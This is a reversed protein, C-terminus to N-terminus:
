QHKKNASRFLDRASSPKFPKIREPVSYLGGGAFVLIAGIMVGLSLKNGFLWISLLLSVLKRINLVISVTLASTQTSLHHVGSICAIQTAGNGLLLPIFQPLDRYTTLLRTKLIRPLSQISIDVISSLFGSSASHKSAASYALSLYEAKLATWQALFFPLALIHSYFLQEDAIAAERGYKTYLRDCWIGMTASLVLALSLLVFGMTQRSSRTDGTQAVADMVSEEYSSLTSNDRKSPSHSTSVAGSDSLAAIVVGVSLLGVAAIKQRSYRRSTWAWGVLMSAVPGASRLIIHLPLSIKYGFAANNLTNIAVFQLAYQVWEFLPIKRPKLRPLLHTQTPQLPPPDPPSVTTFTLQGPLKYLAILLFQTATILTGTAPSLTLISELTYVNTCCGFFILSLARLMVAHSLVSSMVVQASTRVTTFLTDTDLSQGNKYAYDWIKVSSDEQHLYRMKTITLVKDDKAM